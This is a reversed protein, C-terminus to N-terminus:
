LEGGFQEPIFGNGNNETIAQGYSGDRNITVISRYQYKGNLFIDAEALRRQVLGPLVAGGEGTIAWKKIAEAVASSDAGEKWIKYPTGSSWGGVGANMAHSVWVDFHNPEVDDINIGDKEIQKRVPDVFRKILMTGLVSSALMESCPFPKLLEFFEKQYDERIGYGATDAIEGVVRYPYAGFGEFGKLFRYGKATLNGRISPSSGGGGGTAQKRDAIKGIPVSTVIIMGGNTNQFLNETYGAVNEGYELGEDVYESTPYGEENWRNVHCREVFSDMLEHDFLYTSYVDLELHLITASAVRVEKGTIFYYRTKGNDDTFFLYDYNELERLRKGVTVSTRETDEKVNVNNIVLGTKSTFYSKQSARSSFDFVNEYNLDLEPINCLYIDEM